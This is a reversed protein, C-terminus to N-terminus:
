LFLSGILKRVLVDTQSNADNSPIWETIGRYCLKQGNAKLKENLKERLNGPIRPSVGKESQQQSYWLFEDLAWELGDVKSKRGDKIKSLLELAKKQIIRKDANNKIDKKLSEIDNKLELPIKLSKKGLFNGLLETASNDNYEVGLIKKSDFVDLDIDIGINKFGEKKLIGLAKFLGHEFSDLEESLIIEVKDDVGAFIGANRDRAASAEIHKPLGKVKRFLASESKRTGVFIIKSVLNKDLAIRFINARNLSKGHTRYSYIDMHQDFVILALDKIKAAKLGPYTVAHDMSLMITNENYKERLEKEIMELSKKGDKIKPEIHGADSDIKAINKKFSETEKSISKSNPDFESHGKWCVALINAM